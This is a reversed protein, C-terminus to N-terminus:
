KMLAMKKTISKQGDTLTYLYVGTSVSQGLQDRGDWRYTHTGAALYANELVKVEQGLMNFITLSVDSAVDMSFRIDTTPNFPNPYNQALNFENPTVTANDSDTSLTQWEALKIWSLFFVILSQDIEFPFFFYLEIM